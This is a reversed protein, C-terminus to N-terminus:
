GFIVSRRTDKRSMACCFRDVLLVGPLGEPLAESLDVPFGELLDEPFFEPLDKLQNLGRITRKLAAM